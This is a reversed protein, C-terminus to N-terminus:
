PFLLRNAQVGSTLFAQQLGITPYQQVSSDSQLVNGQLNHVRIDWEVSSVSEPPVIRESSPLYLNLNRDGGLLSRPLDLAADIDLFYSLNLASFAPGFDRAVVRNDSPCVLIRTTGLENSLAQYWQYANAREPSNENVGLFFPVQFPFKDNLSTASMRWAMGIQRLNNVCTVRASRASVRTALAPLSVILLLILSGLVTILDTRTSGGTKFDAEPAKIPNM